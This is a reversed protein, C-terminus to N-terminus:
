ESKSQNLTGLDLPTETSILYPYIYPFEMTFDMPDFSQM